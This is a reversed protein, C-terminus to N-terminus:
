LMYPIKLIAYCGIIPGTKAFRPTFDYEIELTFTLIATLIEHM